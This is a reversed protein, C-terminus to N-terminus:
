RIIPSGIPYRAKLEAQLENNETTIQDIVAQPIDSNPATEPTTAVFSQVIPSQAMQSAEFSRISRRGSGTYYSNREAVPQGEPAEASKVVIDGILADVVVRNSVQRFQFVTRQNTAPAVILEDASYVDFVCSKAGITNATDKLKLLVTSAIAWGNGKVHFKRNDDCEMLVTLNKDTAQWGWTSAVDCDSGSSTALCDQLAKECPDGSGLLGLSDASSVGWGTGGDGIASCYQVQVLSLLFAPIGQAIALDKSALSKTAMLGATPPLPLQAHGGTGGRRIRVGPPVCGRDDRERSERWGVLGEGSVTCPFRYRITLSESKLYATPGILHAPKVPEGAKASIGTLTAKATTNQPVFLNEKYDRLQTLWAAAPVSTHGPRELLISSGSVSTVFAAKPVAAQSRSTTLCTLSILLLLWRQPSRLIRDHLSHQPTHMLNRGFDIQNNNLHNNKLNVPKSATSRKPRM